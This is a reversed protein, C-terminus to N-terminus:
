QFKTIECLIREFDLILLLNMKFQDIVINPLAFYQQM